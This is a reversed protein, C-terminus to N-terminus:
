LTFLAEESAEGDNIIFTHYVCIIIFFMLLKFHRYTRIHRNNSCFWIVIISYIYKPIAYFCYGLNNLEASLKIKNHCKQLILEYTVEKMKQKKNFNTNLENINIM